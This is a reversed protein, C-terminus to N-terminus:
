FIYQVAVNVEGGNLFSGEVNVFVDESSGLAYDMGLFLDVPLDEDYTGQKLLQGNQRVRYTVDVISYSIGAYPTLRGMSKAVSTALQWDHWRAENKNKHRARVDTYRVSGDWELGWTKHQWLRSKLQVSSLVNIGFRNITSSDNVKVIAADDVELYALGIKGYISLWDTLGYGRYHGAQYLTAQADGKFERGFLGGGSLGMVWKGKKLISAPSGVAEAWLSGPLGLLCIVLSLVRM